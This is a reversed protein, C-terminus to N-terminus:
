EVRRTGCLDWTTTGSQAADGTVAVTREIRYARGNPKFWVFFQETVIPQGDKSFPPIYVPQYTVQYLKFVNGDDTRCLASTKTADHMIADVDTVSAGCPIGRTVFEYGDLQWEAHARSERYAQLAQRKREEFEARLFFVAAITGIIILAAVMLILTVLGRWVKKARRERMSARPQSVPSPTNQRQVSTSGLKVVLQLHAM